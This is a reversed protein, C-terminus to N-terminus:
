YLKTPKMKMAMGGGRAKIMKGKKAGLGFGFGFEQGPRKPMLPSLAGESRRKMVAAKSKAAAKKLPAMTDRIERPNANFDIARSGSPGGLMTKGFPVNRTKKVTSSVAKKAASMKDGGLMGLKSAGALGLALAAFKMRKRSKRSM